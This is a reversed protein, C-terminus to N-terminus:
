DTEKIAAPRRLGIESYLACPLPLDRRPATLVVPSFVNLVPNTESLFPRFVTIYRGCPCPLGAIGAIPGDTGCAIALLSVREIESFNGFDLPKEDRDFPQLRRASLNLFRARVLGPKKIGNLRCQALPHFLQSVRM